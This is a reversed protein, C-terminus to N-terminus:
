FSVRVGIAIEHSDMPSFVQEVSGFFDNFGDLEAETVYLYTYDAFVYMGNALEQEAGLRLQFALATFSGEVLQFDLSDPGRKFDVDVSAIGLGGGVYLDFTSKPLDIDYLGNLMLTTTTADGDSDFKNGGDDAIFGEAIFGDAIAFQRYSLEVEARLGSFVNYGAGIRVLAAPDFTGHFEDTASGALLSGGFSGRASTGLAGTFYFDSGNQNQQAAAIQPAVCSAVIIAIIITDKKFMAKDMNTAKIRKTTKQSPM